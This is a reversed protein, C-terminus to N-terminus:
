SKAYHPSPAKKVSFGAAIGFFFPMLTIAWRLVSNEALTLRIVESKEPVSAMVDLLVPVAFFMSILSALLIVKQQGTMAVGKKGRALYIAAFLLGGLCTALWYHPLHYDQLTNRMSGIVIGIGGGFILPLFLLSLINVASTSNRKM